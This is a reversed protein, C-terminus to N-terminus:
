GDFPNAAANERMERIVSKVKKAKFVASGAVIINAGAATAKGINSANLGGDVEIDFRLGHAAAYRRLTRVKDLCEPILKQGGFGPEVTMVLVMQVSDLYPYLVEVPTKPSIAIATRVERRSLYDILSRPTPCAEYHFTIIDAGAKIFADAYKQPDSIMLHVDFILNTKSRISEILGPGFSINPVFHGDMIDLHLYDAGAEDVRHIEDGLCSYDAALLSPAIYIM